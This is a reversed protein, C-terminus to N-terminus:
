IYVYIYTYIVYVYIYVCIYMMIYIYIYVYIYIYIMITEGGAAAGSKTAAPYGAQKHISALRRVYQKIAQKELANSNSPISSPNMGSDRSTGQPPRSADPVRAPHRLAMQTIGPSAKTGWFTSFPRKGPLPMTKSLGPHWIRPGHRPPDM